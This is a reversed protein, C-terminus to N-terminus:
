LLKANTTQFLIFDIMLKPALFDSLSNSAVFGVLGASNRYGKVSFRDDGSM